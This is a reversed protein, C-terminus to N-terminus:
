KLFFIPSFVFRNNQQENEGTRRGERADKIIRNLLPVEEEWLPALKGESVM